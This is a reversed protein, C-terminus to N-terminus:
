ILFPLIVITRCRSPDKRANVARQLGEWAALLRVPVVGTADTAATESDMGVLEALIRGLLCSLM